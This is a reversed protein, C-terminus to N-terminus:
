STGSSPDPIRHLGTLYPKRDRSDKRRSGSDRGQPDGGLFDVFQIATGGAHRPRSDKM